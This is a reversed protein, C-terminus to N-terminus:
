KEEQIANAVSEIQLLQNELAARESSKYGTESPKDANDSDTKKKEVMPNILNTHQKQDQELDKKLM